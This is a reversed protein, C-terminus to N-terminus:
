IREIAAAYLPGFGSRDPLIMWGFETKEAFDFGSPAEDVVKVAGPRKKMLRAIISDNELPSISCTSYVIRGGKRVVALASALLTYQRVALNKSRAPSWQSMEEANALLHREGSCPADLLIRDYAETEHWCWRAGDYGTVRVRELQESPLYDELVARLRARRQPSLENCVLSGNKGIREALLLSKGGPAACLDLVEMGEEVGCLAAAFISSPDMLFFDLLGNSCPEPDFRTGAPVIFAEVDGFQVRRLGQVRREIQERDAFRNVRAAKQVPAELATLLGPWRDQYVERYHAEFGERGKRKQNLDKNKGVEGGLTKAM